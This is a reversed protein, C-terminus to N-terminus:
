TGHAASPERPHDAFFQWIVETADLATSPTGSGLRQALPNPEAGPWQHGAGTITILEVSRGAPCHAVSTTLVETTATEPLGCGNIERWAANVEPVPPGDIAPSRPSYPEGPAGDYRIVPDDSGHIHLVSAPAAHTCDVLMTTSDVGIAAFLDTECAMRYAMAGGNSVGSAFVHNPDIAAQRSLTAVVQELFAVDDIGTRAASGCCDGGANWSKDTGDPFAAIFRGRDAAQDWHYSDEAQIGSGYGGHLMVVLPVPGVLGTPRYAHVVRDVGGVTLTQSSRGDPLESSSPWPGGGEAPITGIPPAEGRSCAALLVVLWAALLQAVLRRASGGSKRM